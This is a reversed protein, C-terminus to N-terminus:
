PAMLDDDHEGPRPTPLMAQPRVGDFRLPLAVIAPEDPVGLAGIMGLAKLQEDEVLEPITRIPACPIGAKELLALWHAVPQARMIPEIEAHLADRHEVREVNARFRPDDKWEPHGLAEAFKAFLRDNGAGVILDGDATPFGGYPALGAFGDASRAPMVRSALYNVIHIGSFSVATEFLSTEISAGEGSAGRRFLAALIGIAAWMGTGLDVMSPGTRTPPADAGGTISMLGGYAQMLLEYGPRGALPGVSGFAGIDAYILKPYRARLQPADLGFGALVGPRMNHVFIDATGILDILRARGGENKLDIVISKKNRNIQHFWAPDEGAFPPGLKRGEEGGPREVKIVEAGLDALIQAAHPGAVNQGMEVVRVGALMM